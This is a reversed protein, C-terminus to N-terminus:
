ALDCLVGCILLNCCCVVIKPDTWLSFLHIVLQVRLVFILMYYRKCGYPTNVGRHLSMSLLKLGGHEFSKHECTKLYTKPSETPPPCTITFLVAQGSHVGNVGLHTNLFAGDASEQIHMWHGTHVYGSNQVAVELFAMFIPHVMTM